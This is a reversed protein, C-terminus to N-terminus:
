SDKTSLDDSSPLQHDASKGVYTLRAFRALTARGPRPPRRGFFLYTGRM